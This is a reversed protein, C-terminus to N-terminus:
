ATIDTKLLDLSNVTQCVLLTENWHHLFWLSIWYKWFATSRISKYCERTVHSSLQLTTHFVTLQNFSFIVKAPFFESLTFYFWFDCCLPCYCVCCCVCFWWLPSVRSPFLSLTDPLFSVLSVVCNLMPISFVCLSAPSRKSRSQRSSLLSSLRACSDLQLHSLSAPRNASSSCTHRSAILGVERVHEVQQCDWSM